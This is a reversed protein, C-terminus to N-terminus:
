FSKHLQQMAANLLRPITCNCCNGIKLRLSVVCGAVSVLRLVFRSLSNDHGESGLGEGGANRQDLADLVCDGVHGDAALAGRDVGAGAGLKLREGVAFQGVDAQAAAHDVADGAVRGAQELEFEPLEGGQRQGVERDAKGGQYRIAQM